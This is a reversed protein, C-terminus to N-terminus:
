LEWREAIDAAWGALEMDRAETKFEAEGTAVLRLARSAAMTSTMPLGRRDADSIKAGLAPFGVSELAKSVTFRAEDERRLYDGASEM